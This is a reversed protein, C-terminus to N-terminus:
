PMMAIIGGMVALSFLSHFTNLLFLETKKGEWLVVGIQVPMVFGLWSWFGAMLGSMLDKTPMMGILVSLVYATIASVVFMGGMSTMMMSKMKEDKDMKMGALGAWKKGFLPGYWIFGIVVSAVAAAVVAVTNLFGGTKKRM